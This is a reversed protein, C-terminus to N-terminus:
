NSCIYFAHICGPIWFLITLIVNIVVPSAKWNTHLGVAAPPLVVCLIYEVIQEDSLDKTSKAKQYALQVLRAVENKSLQKVAIAVNEKSINKSQQLEALVTEAKLVPNSASSSAIMMCTMGVFLFWKICKMRYM